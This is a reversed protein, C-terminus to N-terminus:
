GPYRAKAAAHSRAILEELVAPDADSLRQLYLCGKGMKHRGLRGLLDGNRRADCGLYLVLEKARVAFGSLMWDGERGSEYRYHCRGFGVIKGWLAPPEGTVRTMTEGLARADARRVPDAISALFSEFSEGTEQTKNAAM